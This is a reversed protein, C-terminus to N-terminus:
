SRLDSDTIAKIRKAPIGGWLEEPPIKTDPPVVSGAAIVSNDGIDTGAMAIVNVGLTAGRGIRVQRLVIRGGTIAHPTIVSNHGLIAGEGVTVLAPDAIRGGLAVNRGIDAGFARTIVSQTFVTTFPFLAGRGLEYITTYLKWRTFEAQDMRYDGEELPWIASLVRILLAALAGFSLLLLFGDAIVHYDRLIGTTIPVILYATVTWAGVLISAIAIGAFLFDLPQTKM